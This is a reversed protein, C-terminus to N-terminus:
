PHPAGTRVAVGTLGRVIGGQDRFRVFVRNRAPDFPISGSATVFVGFASTSGHNLSIVLSPALGSICHGTAQSTECLLASLPLSTGGTDAHVTVQGTAGANVAAVAFTGISGASLVTVIGDNLHTATLAVVDLLPQTSASLILTNMGPVVSAPTANMCRFSFQVETPNFPATPTLAFVFTRFGGAPIPVPTNSPGTPQNSAPDTAQYVFLAPVSTIPAIGCGLLDRTGANVIMAFATAATNVRVSRASPLVSAALSQALAPVPLLPFFLACLQAIRVRGILRSVRPLSLDTVM